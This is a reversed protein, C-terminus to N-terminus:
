QHHKHSLNKTTSYIIYSDACSEDDDDDMKSKAGNAIYLLVPYLLQVNTSQMANRSHTLSTFHLSTNGNKKTVCPLMTCYTYGLLLM